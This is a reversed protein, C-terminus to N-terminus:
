KNLFFYTLMLSFNRSNFMIYILIQLIDFFGIIFTMNFNILKICLHLM